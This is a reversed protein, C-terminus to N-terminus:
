IWANPHFNNTPYSHHSLPNYYSPQIIFDPILNIFDLLVLHLFTNRIHLENSQPLNSFSSICLNHLFNTSHTILFQTKKKNIMLDTRATWILVLNAPCQFQAVQLQNLYRCIGDGNITKLTSIKILNCTKFYFCSLM